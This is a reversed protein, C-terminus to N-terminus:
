SRTGSTASAGKWTRSSIAPSPSRPSGNFSSRSSRGSSRRAFSARRSIFDEVHIGGRPKIDGRLLHDLSVPDLPDSVNVWRKVCRPVQLGGPQKTLDKLQDQVETLGLPSGITIFLPIDFANPDLGHLVEYAIMSGQSHGIVVFPGGGTTLRDLVSDHMIQRRDKDFFFEYVDQMLMRTFHRTLWKRAREPLPLFKAGYGRTAMLKHSLEEQPPQDQEIEDALRKLSARAKPDIEGDIDDVVSALPQALASVRVGMTLSTDDPIATLDGSQCTGPYPLPYTHRNVWYALRSREGLDFEYLAKDWQCKLIHAPPKNAIGHVYIITRATGGMVPLDVDATLFETVTKMAHRTATAAAPTMAAAPTAAASAAARARTSSRPGKSQPKKTARASKKKPM